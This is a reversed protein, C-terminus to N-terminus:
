ELLERHWQTGEGDSNSEGGQRGEGFFGDVQRDNMADFGFREFVGLHHVVDKIEGVHIARAEGIRGAEFGRAVPHHLPQLLVSEGIDVFLGPSGEAAAPGVRVEGAVHKFRDIRRQDSKRQGPTGARLARHSASAM